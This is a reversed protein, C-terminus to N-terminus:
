IHVLSIFKHMTSLLPKTSYPFSIIFGRQQQHAKPNQNIPSDTFLEPDTLLFSPKVSNNAFRLKPYLGSSNIDTNRYCFNRMYFRLSM